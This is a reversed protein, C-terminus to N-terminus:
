ENDDLSPFLQQLLGQKHTRLADLKALQAGIWTDLASFCKAIEQQEAVTPPIPVPVTSIRNASIGYVKAGQAEKKIGARVAASQFLQGGFGIVPVKGRRTALITHTGAVVREGDLSFVEIAKGVDDLDESADALVIDGEECFTGDNFGNASADPNVYPVHEEDLRFLPKFKTHIDGYHINRITGTEYNLKDRSLTNTRKFRYLDSFQPASWTPDGRFEPFRLIPQAEGPQPFLQQMLGQKHRRLADLKRDESAILDDLSGLCDAIRQQEGSKPDPFCVVKKKLASFHRKYQEMVVPRHSLQHYLYVTSVCSRATFIKIGDAGQAFPQNIFKLVCTHDGFVIVPLPRTIVAEDDNTWGCIFSASQDIIPFRGDALYQSTTLKKPPTVTEVLDAIRAHDWGPGQVFEPFRLKPVLRSPKDAM